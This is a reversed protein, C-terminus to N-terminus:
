AAQPWEILVRDNGSQKVRISRKETHGAYTATVKYEGPPVRALLFPGNVEVDLLKKGGADRLTVHAGPLYLDRHPARRVFELALPFRDAAKEFADWRTQLQGGTVYAIGNQHQEPPLHQAPMQAAACGIGGAALLSGFFAAIAVRRM